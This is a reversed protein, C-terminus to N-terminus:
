STWTSSAPGARASMSSLSAARTGPTVAASVHRKAVVWRIRGSPDSLREKMVKPSGVSVVITFGFSCAPRQSRGASPFASTAVAFTRSSSGSRRTPSM